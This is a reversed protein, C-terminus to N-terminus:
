DRQRAQKGAREEVGEADSAADNGRSRSRLRAKATNQGDTSTTSDAIAVMAEEEPKGDVKLSGAQVPLAWATDPVKNDQSYDELNLVPM